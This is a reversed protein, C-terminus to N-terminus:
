MEMKARLNRASGAVDTGLSRSNESVPFMTELFPAARWEM